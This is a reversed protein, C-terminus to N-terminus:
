PFRNQLINAVLNKMSNNLLFPLLSFSSIEKKTFNPATYDYLEIIFLSM